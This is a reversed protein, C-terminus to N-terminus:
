AAKGRPLLGDAQLAQRIAGSITVGRKAVARDLAEREANTLKVGTFAPRTRM